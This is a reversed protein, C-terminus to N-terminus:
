LTDSVKHAKPGADKKFWYCFLSIPIASLLAAIASTSLIMLCTMADIYVREKVGDIELYRPWRLDIYLAIALVANIAFFSLLALRKWSYQWCKWYVFFGVLGYIIIYSVGVRIVVWDFTLNMIIFWLIPHMLFAFLSALM